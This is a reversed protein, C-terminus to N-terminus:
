LPVEIHSRYTLYCLLIIGGLAKSIWFGPTIFKESVMEENGSELRLMGQSINASNTYSHILWHFLCIADGRSHLEPIALLFYPSNPPHKTLKILVAFHLLSHSLAKKINTLMKVLCYKFIHGRSKIHIVKVREDEFILMQKWNFFFLDLISIKIKLNSYLKYRKFINIMM